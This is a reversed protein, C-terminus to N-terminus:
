PDDTVVDDRVDPARRLPDDEGRQEGPEALDHRDVHEGVGDPLVRRRGTRHVRQARLDGSQAAHDASPQFPRGVAVREHQLGAVRHICRPEVVGQAAGALVPLDALEDGGERRPAPPGVALQGVAEAHAGLRTAELQRAEIRHLERGRCVQRRAPERLGGRGALGDDGGVVHALRRPRDEYPREGPGAPRGLRQAAARRAAVASRSAPSTGPSSRRPASRSASSVGASAGASAGATATTATGGGGSVAVIPRSSSWRSTTAATRAARNTVSTPGPPTPM